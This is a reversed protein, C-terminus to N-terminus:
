EFLTQWNYVRYFYPRNYDASGPYTFYDKDNGATQATSLVLEGSRSLAPHLAVRTLSNYYQNGIKNIYEPIVCLTKADTFPGYPTKSRWIKLDAKNQYSQGVLYYWEDQKFVQPHQCAGNNELMNSRLADDCATTSSATLVNKIWAIKGETDRICYEWESNLDHTASRAVLVGNVGTLQYACYMYNHGDDDKMLFDDYAIYSNFLEKKSVESLCGPALDGAKDYSVLECVDRKGLTTRYAIWQVQIQGNYENAIGPWYHYTSKAHKMFPQGNYYDAASPDNTQVYANLNVFNEKKPQTLSGNDAKLVVLSNKVVNGSVRAREENVVGYYGDRVVFLLDGNSLKVSSQVDGGTWGLSQTFIDNLLNDKYLFINDDHQGINIVESLNWSSEITPHEATTRAPETEIDEYGIAVPDYDNCATLSFAIAMAMLIQTKMNM